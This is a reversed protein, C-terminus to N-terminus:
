DKPLELKPQARSDEAVDARQREQLRARAADAAAEARDCRAGRVAQEIEGIREYAFRLQAAQRAELQAVFAKWAAVVPPPVDKTVALRPMVAEGRFDLTVADIRCRGGTTTSRAKVAVSWKSTAPLIRNTEPERPAAKAVAKHIEPIDNGAVDYYIIAVNPIDAFRAAPAADGSTRDGLQASRMTPATNLPISTGAPQQAALAFVLFALAPM